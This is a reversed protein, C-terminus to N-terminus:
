RTELASCVGGVPASEKVRPRGPYRRGNLWQGLWTNRILLHYMAFLLPLAIACILAYKVGAAVDWRAVLIQISVVIPLHALYIFYSSDAVYRWFPNMSSSFRHFAGILGAIMCWMASAYMSLYVVRSITGFSAGPFLTQHIAVFRFLICGLLFGAMLATTWRRNRSFEGLLHTQRHMAWGGMFCFGYLLLTPAYFLTTNPTDVGWQKMLFLLPVTSAPLIWGMWPSRVCEACFHDITLTLRQYRKAGMANVCFWRIVLVASYILILHHLFWLHLMNFSSTLFNRSTLTGIALQWVPLSQHEAPIGLADLRGGTSAGWIWISTCVPYLVLWGALFPLVIRKFRNSIFERSGKKHLLLHAFFGAILFFLEMRFTHCFHQFWEFVWHAHPDVIAWSYRGPCFSEAAHFFVGLLLAFGRLADFSHFRDAGTTLAAPRRSSTDSFANM